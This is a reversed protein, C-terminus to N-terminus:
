EDLLPAGTVNGFTDNLNRVLDVVETDESDMLSRISDPSLRARIQICISHYHDRSLIADLLDHIARLSAIVTVIKNCDLLDMVLPLIGQDVATNRQDTNGSQILNM